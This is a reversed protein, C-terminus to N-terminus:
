FSYRMGVQITRSGGQEAGQTSTIRGFNAAEVNRAPLGFNPTNTFNAFSGELQLYHREIIQFRKQMKLSLNRTPPGILANAGVTGFRGIASAPVRFASRDWWANIDGSGTNGYATGAYDPRGSVGRNSPRTGSPDSGANITPSLYPGTQLLLIASLQWGGAVADAIRNKKTWQGFPLEYNVSTLWRHRRTSSVNGKDLMLNFRDTPVSGNESAFGTGDAGTANTLHKAWTWSSQFQLGKSLRKNLEVTAANYWAFTNPDRTFVVNWVPYPRSLRATAFGQTNVPVQNLDPSSFLKIAKNGTYTLRLGYGAGLDREATLSWQHMQPDAGDFQTARRFDPTGGASVTAFPRPFQLVPRGNVISNPFTRADSVHIGTITYFVSGLITVTYLGYGGRIVTRDNNFPKYAFGFRPAFNNYDTYRLTRPLGVESALVIPTNGISEKFPAATFKRAEEDAIIVRAGPGPFARDFNTTTRANDFFMPHIEYRVGYNLTLRRNVKFDDQAYFGLHYTVGDVDQGTNARTTQVPIGLLFDAFANRTYTGDFSYDGMDDGTFFSTIDTTRLRRIDTGFKLTHRGKIWSVNDLFQYTNSLVTGQRGQGTSAFGAIGINPTQSGKPPDSRIGEIGAEKMLAPGDFTGNAGFTNLTDRNSYGFRFENILNSRLVSNFATVLNWNKEESRRDGYAVLDLPTRRAVKKYSLRGFINHKDTFLHDIRADFQDNDNGGSFQNRYNPNSVSDGPQNQRTYLRNMLVTSSSSIRSAPIVNGAFPANGNLLDLVPTSLSSFNGTRFSDPPVIINVLRQNRFRLSEFSGLFFTRNKIVPGSVLAGFDNSVKFPTRTAFFDRADFAGNQHYWYATGHLQNAGGKTVVTIDGAQAFEANNNISSIKIESIADASPFMETLIGNSRVNINSVGDVTANATFPMGGGVSINGGGADTQVNPAYSLAGFVSNTAGSRFNVPLGQIEGPTRTSSVTAVETTIVQRAETVQVETTQATIQMPADIRIVDRARLTIGTTSFPRFGQADVRLEYPGAPLNLFLFLGEETATAKREENTATNKLTANARVGAGAPDTAVGRIEGFISQAHLGSLAAVLSLVLLAKM